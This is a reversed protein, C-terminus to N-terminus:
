AFKKIYEHRKMGKAEADKEMKAEIKKQDEECKKKFYEWTDKAIQGNEYKVQKEARIRLVEKLEQFLAKIETDVLGKIM